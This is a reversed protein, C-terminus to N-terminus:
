LGDDPDLLAFAENNKVYLILPKGGITYIRCDQSEGEYAHDLTSLPVLRAPNSVDVEYLRGGKGCAYIRSSRPNHRVRSDVQLGPIDISTLRHLPRNTTGGVDGTRADFTYSEIAGGNANGDLGVFVHTDTVAIGRVGDQQPILVTDTVKMSTPLSSLDIVMFLGEGGVFAHSGFVHVNHALGTGIVTHQVGTQSVFKFAGPGTYQWAQLLYTNPNTTRDTVDVLVYHKGGAAYTAIGNAYVKTSPLNRLVIPPAPNPDTSNVAFAEFGGAGSVTVVYGTTASLRLYAVHETNSTSAQYANKRASDAAPVPRAPNSIDYRALGGFTPLYVSRFEPVAVAGDNSSIWWLHNIRKPLFRPNTPSEIAIQHVCHDVSHHTATWLEAGRNPIQLYAMDREGADYFPVSTSGISTKTAVSLRHLRNSCAIWLSDQASNKQVNWADTTPSLHIVTKVAPSIAPNAVDLELVLASFTGQVKQRGSALYARDTGTRPDSIIQLYHASAHPGYSTAPSFTQREVAQWRGRPNLEFTMLGNKDRATANSLVGIVYGVSKGSRLTHVQLRTGVALASGIKTACLATAGSSSHSLVRLKDHSLVFM